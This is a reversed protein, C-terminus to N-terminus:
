VNGLPTKLDMPLLCCPIIDGTPDIALKEVLYHCYRELSLHPYPFSSNPFLHNIGSFAWEIRRIAKEMEEENLSYGSTLKRGRGSSVICSVLISDVGYGYSFQPLLEIEKLNHRIVVTSVALKIGADKAFKAGKLRRDFSGNM